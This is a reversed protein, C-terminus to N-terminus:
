SCNIQKPDYSKKGIDLLFLYLIIIQVFRVCNRVKLFLRLFKQEFNVNYM